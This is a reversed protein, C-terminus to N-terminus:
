NQGGGLNLVALNYEDETNKIIQKIQRYWESIKKRILENEKEMANASYFLDASHMRNDRFPNVGEKIDAIAASNYKVKNYATHIDAYLGSIENQMAELLEKRIRDLAVQEFCGTFSHKVLVNAFAELLWDWDSGYITTSDVDSIGDKLAQVKEESMPCLGNQDCFDQVVECLDTLLEKNKEM